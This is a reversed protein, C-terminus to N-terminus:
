NREPPLLATVERIEAAIREDWTWFNEDAFRKAGEGLRKREDEDSLLRCIEEPLCSLEKEPLLIGNAENKIVSGTMGTDVTIIAKGCRMAEFLPNGLNSASYLSIFVDARQLYDYVLEHSIKGTFIVHKELGLACVQEELNKREEGYGVIVLKAEPHSKVVEALADIALNVRKGAQLRSLTMLVTDSKNLPLEAGLSVAPAGPIDVGNRWFFIKRSKNGSRKLVEDGRTGDNTMLVMDAEIGYAQLKPYYRLRNVFNDKKTMMDWIGYFRTVLPMAYTRSIQKAAHVAYTDQGYVVTNDAALHQENILRGAERILIHRIAFVNAFGFFWGIKRIRTERLFPPNFRVIYLGDGYDREGLPTDEKTGVDVIWVKWGAAIFGEVTKWFTPAGVNHREGLGAFTLILLNKM